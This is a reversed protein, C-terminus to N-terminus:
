ERDWEQLLIVHVLRDVNTSHCMRIGSAALAFDM